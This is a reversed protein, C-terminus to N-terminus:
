TLTPAVLLLKMEDCLFYEGELKDVYSQAVKWKALLEKLSDEM